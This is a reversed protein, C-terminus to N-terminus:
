VGNLSLLLLLGQAVCAADETVVSPETARSCEAVELMRTGECLSFWFLSLLGAVAACIAAKHCGAYAPRWPRLQM